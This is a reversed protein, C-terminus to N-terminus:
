YCGTEAEAVPFRQNKDDQHVHVASILPGYTSQLPICCTGKGAWVLHIDMVTNTVNAKFKKVLAKNSGGAEKQINFDQIVRLSNASIRANQYLESDSTKSIQSRTQAKDMQPGNKNSYFIGFRSVAWQSSVNTYLSAAGLMESDDDFNTKDTSVLTHGGDKLNPDNISTGVVNIEINEPGRSINGTLPNFSVDLGIFASNESSIIDSPLNLEGSFSNTGLFLFQLSSFNKFSAPIQGTLKNFSLDLRELKLLSSLKEQIQGGIRCNRLSLTSLSTMNEVFDLSSDVIGGLDGIRLEELKTLAGFSSPIPGELNTGELRLDVLETFSGLFEPIKGTFNNDSAWLQQLSTLKGLEPPLTGHLSNSGFSLSILKTLNGLEAPVPGTLNNIGLSLYQMKSLKGIERPILGNIVNQGLDLDVLETLNFLAQPIEGFVDLAYIKLHTIHCATNFCDCAIRPNADKPAWTANPICPDVNLNLKSRLGWHDIIKKIAVVERPETPLPSQEASIQLMWLAFLTFSLLGM